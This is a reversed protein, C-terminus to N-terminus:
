KGEKAEALCRDAVDRFEPSSHYLHELWQPLDARTMADVKLPDIPLPPVPVPSVDATTQELYGLLKQRFALRNLGQGQM